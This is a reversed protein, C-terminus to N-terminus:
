LNEANITRPNIIATENNPVPSTAANESLDFEAGTARSNKGADFASLVRGTEM